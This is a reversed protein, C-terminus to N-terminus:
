FNFYFGFEVYSSDQVPENPRARYEGKTYSVYPTVYPLNLSASVDYSTRLDSQFDNEGVLSDLNVSAGLSLWDIPTYDISFSNYWEVQNEKRDKNIHESDFGYEASRHQLYTDFYFLVQESLPKAVLMGLDINQSQYTFEGDQETSYNQEQGIGYRTYGEMYWSGVVSGYSAGVELYKDTDIDVYASLKDTFEYGVGVVGLLHDDYQSAQLNLDWNASVMSSSFLGLLAIGHTLKM